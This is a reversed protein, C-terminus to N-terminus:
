GHAGAKRLARAHSVGIRERKCPPCVDVPLDMGSASLVQKLDEVHRAGAFPRACRRCLAPPESENKRRYLLVGLQLPRQFIHFFKGFPVYLLAVCVTLAHVLSLAGYGAGGLAHMSFTLLLGTASIALLLLLPVIDNGFQQRSTSAPDRLRRRLALSAGLIVMAASLNLLNFMAYRWFSSSDFEAVSWGFIMIRYIEPDDRRSEFHLWGFVMPFTVAGALVCGWAISFHVLWKSLSRRRIFRQALLNAYAARALFLLNPAVRGPEFLLRWGRRWYLATAPRQLWVSYRYVVAFVAFLAGFTYTLLMPDYDRLNRSGLVICAALLMAVSSGALVGARDWRGLTM